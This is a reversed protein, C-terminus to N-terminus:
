RLGIAIQPVFTLPGFRGFTVPAGDQFQANADIRFGVVITPTAQVEIGPGFRVGFADGEALGKFVPHEHYVHGAWGGIAAFYTLEHPRHSIILGGGYRLAALEPSYRSEPPLAVDVSASAEVSVKTEGVEIAQVRAGGSVGNYLGLVTIDLHAQVRDRVGVDYGFTDLPLGVVGIVDGRDTDHGTWLSFRAHGYKLRAFDDEFGSGRLDFTDLGHWDADLSTYAFADAPVGASPADGRRAEDIAAGIGSVLQQQVDAFADTFLERPISRRMLSWYPWSLALPKTRVASARVDRAARIAGDPGTVVVRVDAEVEFFAPYLFKGVLGAAGGTLTSVWQADSVDRTGALHLVYLEVSLGDDAIPVGAAALGAHAARDVIGLAGPRLNASGYTVIPLPIAAWYLGGSAREDVPRADIPYALRVAPGDVPRSLPEPAAVELRPPVCAVLSGLSLWPIVVRM